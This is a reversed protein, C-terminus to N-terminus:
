PERMGDRCAPLGRLTELARLRSAETPDLHTTSLTRSTERRRVPVPASVLDPSAFASRGAALPPLRGSSPSSPLCESVSRMALGPGPGAVVTDETATASEAASAVSRLPTGAPTCPGEGLKGRPRAAPPSAATSADGGCAAAAEPGPLELEILCPCDSGCVQRGKARRAGPPSPYQFALISGGKAGGLALAVAPLAVGPDDAAPVAGGGHRLGAPSATIFDEVGGGPVLLASMLGTCRWRGAIETTVNRGKGHRVWVAVWGGGAALLRDGEAGVAEVSADLSLTQLVESTRRSVELVRGDRCGAIVTRTGVFSVCAIDAEVDLFDRSTYNDLVDLERVKGGGATSLLVDGGNAIGSIASDHVQLNHVQKLTSRRWHWIRLRGTSDGGAITHTGISLLCTVEFGRALFGPSGDWSVVRVGAASGVAASQEGIPAICTVDEELLAARTRFRTGLGIAM